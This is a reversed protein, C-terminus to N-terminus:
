SGIAFGEGGESRVGAVYEGMSGTSGSIGSKAELGDGKGEGPGECSRRFRCCGAAVGVAADYRSFRGALDALASVEYSDNRGDNSSISSRGLLMIGRGGPARLARLRVAREGM